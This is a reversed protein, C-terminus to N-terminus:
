RVDKLKKRTERIGPKDPISLYIRYLQTLLDRDEPAVKLGDLLVAESKRYLDTKIAELRRIEARSSEQEIIGLLAEAENAYVKSLELFAEAEGPSGDLVARFSRIAAEAEGMGSQARGLYLYMEATAPGLKIAKLFAEAARPYREMKLYMKGTNMEDAVQGTELTRSIELYDEALEFRGLSRALTALEALYTKRPRMHRNKVASTLLEGYLKSAMEEDNGKRACRLAEQLNGSHRWDYGYAETFLRSAGSLDGAEEAQKALERLEDSKLRDLQHVSIAEGWGFERSYLGWRWGEQFAEGRDPIDPYGEYVPESQLLRRHVESTEAPDLGFFGLAYGAFYDAELEFKEMQNIEGMPHQFVHHGLAHMFTIAGPLDSGPRDLFEEPDSQMAIIRIKGGHQKNNALTSTNLSGEACALLSFNRTIRLERFISDIRALRAADCISTICWSETKGPLDVRTVSDAPIEPPPMLTGCPEIFEEFSIRGTFGCISQSQCVAQASTTLALLIILTIKM